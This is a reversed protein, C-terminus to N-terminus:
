SLNCGLVIDILPSAASGVIVIAQFVNKGLVSGSGSIVYESIYPILALPIAVLSAYIPPNM